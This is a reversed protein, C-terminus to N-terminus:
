NIITGGGILKDKQYWVAAQGPTIGSQGQSLNIEISGSQKKLTAEVPKQRYRTQVQCKYPLKPLQGSIFNVEKVKFSTSKSAKDNKKAVVLKNNRGDKKVVYYPGPGGIGLGERQGVTYLPLGKHEGVMQGATNFIPGPKLNLYKRLFIEYKGKPIFCLDQSESRDASPLKYQKALQRVQSKKFDGIPFMLQKLRQQNLTYHFYSQDKSKDIGRYVEFRNGIKKSRLYHGTALYDAKLSRAHKLLFDFRVHQNCAVCPNPTRGAKLEQLFHDVVFEKFPMLANITQFQIGLKQAVRSATGSSDLSCCRNESKPDISRDFWTNLFMGTVRYGKELLLAAAVSSDVGGSMAVVVHPNM